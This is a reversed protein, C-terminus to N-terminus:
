MKSFLSIVFNEGYKEQLISTAEEISDATVDVYTHSYDKLSVKNLDSSVFMKYTNM